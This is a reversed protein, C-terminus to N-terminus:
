ATLLNGLKWDRGGGWLQRSFLGRYWSLPILVDTQRLLDSIYHLLRGEDCADTTGAPHDEHAETHPDVAAALLPLLQAVVRGGKGIGRCTHGGGWLQVKQIPKHLFFTVVTNQREQLLTEVRRPM